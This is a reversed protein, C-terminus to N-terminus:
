SIRQFVMSSATTFAHGPAFQAALCTWHKRSVRKLKRLRRAARSPSTRLFAIGPWHALLSLAPSSINRSSVLPPFAMVASMLLSKGPRMEFRISQIYDPLRNVLVDADLPPAASSPSYMEDRIVESGLFMAAANRKRVSRIVSAHSKKLATESFSGCRSFVSWSSSAIGRVDRWIM